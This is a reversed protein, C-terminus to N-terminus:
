EQLNNELLNTNFSFKAVIEAFHAFQHPPVVIKVSSKVKVPEDWFSYQFKLECNALTWKIRHITKIVSDSTESIQRLVSLQDHTDIEVTYVRYNDFRAKESWASSASLAILLVCLTFKM